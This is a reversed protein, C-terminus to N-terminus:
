NKFFDKFIKKYEELIIKLIYNYNCSYLYDFFYGPTDTLMDYMNILEEKNFFKLLKKIKM